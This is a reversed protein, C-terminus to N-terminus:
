PLCRLPPPQFRKLSKTTGSASVEGLSTGPVRAVAVRPGITESTAMVALETTAATAGAAAARRMPPAALTPAEAPGPPRVSGSRESWRWLRRMLSSRHRCPHVAATAALLLRLPLRQLGARMDAAAAAAHPPQLRLRRLATRQRAASAAPLPALLPLRRRGASGPGAAAVALPAKPAPTAVLSITAVMAWLASWSHGPQPRLPSLLRRKESTTTL